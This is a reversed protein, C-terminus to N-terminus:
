TFQFNNPAFVTQGTNQGFPCPVTKLAKRANGRVSQDLEILSQQSPMQQQETDDTQEQHLPEMPNNLSIRGRKKPQKM